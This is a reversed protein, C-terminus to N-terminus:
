SLMIDIKNALGTWKQVIALKFYDLEQYYIDSNLIQGYLLLEYYIIRKLGVLYLSNDQGNTRIQCCNSISWWVKVLIATDCLM